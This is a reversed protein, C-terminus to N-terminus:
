PRLEPSAKVPRAESLAARKADIIVGPPLLIPDSGHWPTIGPDLNVRIQGDATTDSVAVARCVAWGLLFSLGCVILHYIVTIILM